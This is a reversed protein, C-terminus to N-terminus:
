TGQGKPLVVEARLMSLVAREGALLQEFATSAGRRQADWADLGARVDVGPARKAIDIATLEVVAAQWWVAIQIGGRAIALRAELRRRVDGESGRGGIALMPIAVRRVADTANVADDEASEGIRLLWAKAL